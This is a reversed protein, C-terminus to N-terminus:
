PFGAAILDVEPITSSAEKAVEKRRFTKVDDHRLVDPWHRELVQRRYPNIEVQWECKWGALELGRDMGGVGSYLSGFRPATM